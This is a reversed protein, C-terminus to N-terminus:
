RWFRTSGPIGSAACKPPGPPGTTWTWAAAFSNSSSRIQVYRSAFEVMSTNRQRDFEDIVVVREEHAFPLTPFLGQWVIVIMATTAGIGIALTAVVALMFGPNKRLTRVVFLLDRLFNEVWRIGREDRYLEKAKDTGGFDRQAAHQAEEPSMGAVINAETAMDLHTRLEESLGAEIKRRRFFPQLRFLIQRFRHM